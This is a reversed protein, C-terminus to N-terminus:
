NTKLIKAAMGKQCISDLQSLSTLAGNKNRFDLIQKATKANVGQIMDCMMEENASNLMTLLVASKCNSDDGWNEPGKPKEEVKPSPSAMRKSSCRTKKAPEPKTIIVKDEQSSPVEQHQANGKTSQRKKAPSDVRRLQSLDKSQRSFINDEHLKPPQQHELTAPEAISDGPAAKKVTFEIEPQVEVIRSSSSKSSGIRACRQLVFIVTRSLWLLFCIMFQVFVMTLVLLTVLWLLLLVSAAHVDPRVGLSTSYQIAVTQVQDKMSMLGLKAKQLQEQDPKVGVHDLLVLFAPELQAVWMDANSPHMAGAKIADLNNAKLLDRLQEPGGVSQVFALAGIVAFAFAPPLLLSRFVQRLM